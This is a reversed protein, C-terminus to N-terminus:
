PAFPQRRPGDAPRVDIESGELDKAELLRRVKLAAAAEGKAEQGPPSGWRVRWRPTSLAVGGEDVAVACGALVLRDRHPLLLAVTRAAAEVRTDGWPRGPRGTPMAAGALEPLGTVDAKAPLLVGTGDVARRVRGQRVALAPTRYVLQVRIAGSGRKEVRGLAAVWPHAAFATALRGTLQPDLLDCDDPLDAHYQVESLFAARTLGPPPECDIDAFAVTHRGRARLSDRAREGLFQVSALLAAGALLPLGAQVM